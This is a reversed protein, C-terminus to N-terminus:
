YSRTVYCAGMRSGPEDIGLLALAPMRAMYVKSNHIFIAGCRCESDLEAIDVLVEALM